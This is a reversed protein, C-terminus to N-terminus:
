SKRFTFLLFKQCGETMFHALTESEDMMLHNFDRYFTGDWRQGQSLRMKVEDILDTCNYRYDWQADFTRHALAYESYYSLVDDTHHIAREAFVFPYHERYYELDFQDGQIRHGSVWSALTYARPREGRVTRHRYLAVLRQTVGEACLATNWDRRISDSAKLGLQKAYQPDQHLKQVQSVAYDLEAHAEQTLGRQYAGRTAMAVTVTAPVLISNGSNMFDLNGSYATAIAPIGLAMAEMINFGMGEATHLSVFVNSCRLFSLYELKSDFAEVIRIRPDMRSERLLRRHAPLNRDPHNVKILLMADTGLPFARHFVDIVKEPQKRFYSIYDFAFTMVFTTESLNWRQRDCHSADLLPFRPPLKMRLVPVFAQQSVAIQTYSSVAWIEDYYGTLEAWGRPFDETEWAWVGINVRGEFFSRGKSFLYPFARYPGVTEINFYYYGPGHDTQYDHIEYPIHSQELASVLMHAVEKLGTGEMKETVVNVGFPAFARGQQLLVFICLLFLFTM